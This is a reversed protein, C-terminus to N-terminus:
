KERSSGRNPPPVGRRGRVNYYRTLLIALFLTTGQVVTPFWGGVATRSVSMVEWSMNMSAHVAWPVWVNDWAVLLWSFVAAGTGTVFFLAAMGALTTGKEMHGLGSILMSIGLAAIFPWHARRYLQLFGFARSSVEEVFPSYLSLYALKLLPPPLFGHTLALAVWMPATAIAAVILGPAIPRNIRLENASAPLGFGYLVRLGVLVVVIELLNKLGEPVFFPHHQYLERYWPMLWLGKQAYVCVALVILTVVVVLAPRRPSNQVSAEPLPRTLGLETREKSGGAVGITV